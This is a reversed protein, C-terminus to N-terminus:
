IKGPFLLLELCAFHETKKLVETCPTPDQEVPSFYTQFESEKKFQFIADYQM